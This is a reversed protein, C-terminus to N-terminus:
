DQDGSHKKKIKRRIDPWFEKAFISLADYGM